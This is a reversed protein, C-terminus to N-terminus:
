LYNLLARQCSLQILDQRCAALCFCSLSMVSSHMAEQMKVRSLTLCYGSSIPWCKSGSGSGLMSYRPMSKAYRCAFHQHPKGPMLLNEMKPWKDHVPWTILGTPRKDDHHVFEYAYLASQRRWQPNNQIGRGTADCM